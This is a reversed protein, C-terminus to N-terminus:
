SGSVSRLSTEGRREEAGGNNHLLISSRYHIRLKSLETVVTVLGHALTHFRPKVNVAPSNFKRKEQTWVLLVTGDSPHCCRKVKRELFSSMVNVV